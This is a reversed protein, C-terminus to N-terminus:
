ITRAVYPQFGAARLRREVDSAATATPLMTFLTPGSGSLMAWEAGADLMVKRAAALGPFAASAVAEFVNTLTAGSPTAGAELLGRVAATSEGKTYHSPTMMAYLAATKGRTEGPTALLVVYSEAIPPLPTVVEGRGEVFATGGHLFFPVDSGLAAALPSLDDITLGLGWLWNLAQLTTAADSSGGGLGSAEPIAKHLHITAGASCGTKERLLHAAKLVLNDATQLSPVNCSLNTEDAATFTLRDALDVTQMVSVIEHYGDERKGLVELTLNIKAPARVTLVARM